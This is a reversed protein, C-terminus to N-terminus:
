HQICTVGQRSVQAIAFYEILVSLANQVFVIWIAATFSYEYILSIFIPALLKALLDIRRM